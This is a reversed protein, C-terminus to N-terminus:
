RRCRGIWAISASDILMLCDHRLVDANDALAHFAESRAKEILNERVDNADMTEGFQTCHPPLVLFCSMFPHERLEEVVFGQFDQIFRSHHPGYKALDLINLRLVDVELVPPCVEAVRQLTSSMFSQCEMATTFGQFSYRSSAEQRTADAIAQHAQKAAERHDCKSKSEWAKHSALWAIYYGTERELHANFTNVSAVVEQKLADRARDELQGQFGVKHAICLM